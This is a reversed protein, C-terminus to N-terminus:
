AATQTALIQALGLASIVSGRPRWGLGALSRVNYYKGFKELVVKYMEINNRPKPEVGHPGHWTGFNVVFIDDPSALKDHLLQLVGGDAVQPHPDHESPRKGV